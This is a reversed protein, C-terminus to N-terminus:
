FQRAVQAAASRVSADDAVDLQVVHVGAAGFRRAAALGREVDRSGLVVVYGDQALQRCLELGIGRNGGTVVALPEVEADGENSSGHHATRPVMESTMDEGSTRFSDIGCM